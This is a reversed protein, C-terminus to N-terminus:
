DRTRQFRGGINTVITKTGEGQDLLTSYDEGEVM